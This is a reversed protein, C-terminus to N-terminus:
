YAPVAVKWLKYPKLSDITIAGFVQEQLGETMGLIANLPTRLEHSMNALFEDKLRTARALEQNSVALSLNSETLKM